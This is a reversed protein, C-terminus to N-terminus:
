AVRIFNPEGLRDCIMQLADPDACTAFGNSLATFGIGAKVCQRKGWEHGNVRVKVPYPFCACVKIFAPGFDADWLYFYSCSVRRDAKTFSYWPIGKSGQRQNAADWLYVNQYEQAVGIPAVGSRGTAAQAAIHRRMLDIKRDGM